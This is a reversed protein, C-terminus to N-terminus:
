AHKKAQISADIGSHSGRTSIFYKQLGKSKQSCKLNQHAENAVTKFMSINNFFM